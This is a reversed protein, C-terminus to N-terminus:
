FSVQNTEDSPLVLTGVRLNVKTGNRLVSVEVGKEASSNCALEVERFTSVTKGNISLV